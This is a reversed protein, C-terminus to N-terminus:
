LGHLILSFYPPQDKRSQRYSFTEQLFTGFKIYQNWTSTVINNIKYVSWSYRIPTHHIYVQEQMYWLYALYINKIIKSNGIYKVLFSHNKKSLFVSLRRIENDITFTFTYEFSTLKIFIHLFLFIRCLVSIINVYKLALFYVLLHSSSMVHITYFIICFSVTAM